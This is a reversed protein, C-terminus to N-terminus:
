TRYITCPQLCHSFSNRFLRYVRLRSADAPSEPLLKLLPLRSAAALAAHMRQFPTRDFSFRVHFHDESSRKKSRCRWRYLPEMIPPQKSLCQQRVAIASGAASQVDVHLLSGSVFRDSGPLECVGCWFAPAPGLLCLDGDAALLATGYELDPDADARIYVVDGPLLSPRGQAAVYRSERLRGVHLSAMHRHAPCAGFMSTEVVANEVELIGPANLLLLPLPMAHGLLQLSPGRYIRSGGGDTAARLPLAVGLPLVSYQVDTAQEFRAARLKVHFM